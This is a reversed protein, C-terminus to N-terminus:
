RDLACSVTPVRNLDIGFYTRYAALIEADGSLSRETREGGEPIILRDGSLTIRGSATLISCTLSRRFHSDPWTQQFWCTSGFDALQYPRPDIRYAPIGDSVM